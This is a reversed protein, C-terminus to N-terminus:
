SGVPLGAGLILDVKDERAGEPEVGKFYFVCSLDAWTVQTSQAGKTFIVGLRRTPKDVAALIAKEPVAHDADRRLLKQSRQM